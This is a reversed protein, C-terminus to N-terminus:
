DQAEGGPQAGQLLPQLKLRIAAKAVQLAPSLGKLGEETAAQALRRPRQGGMLLLQQGLQSLLEIAVGLQALRASLGQHAARALRQVLQLAVM